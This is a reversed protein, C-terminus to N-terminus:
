TEEAEEFKPRIITCTKNRRQEKCSCYREVTDLLVKYLGLAWKQDATGLDELPKVVGGGQRCVATCQEVAMRCVALLCTATNRALEQDEM